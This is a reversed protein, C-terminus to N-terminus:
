SRAPSAPPRPCTPRRCPPGDYARAGACLEGGAGSRLCSPSLAIRGGGFRAQTARTLQWAAGRTPSLQLTAVDALWDAGARRLGGGLALAGFPGRADARLQLAEVAGRADANLSEFPLGVQLGSGRLALAGPAGGVHWPLRGKASLQGIRYSGVAVDRGDLDAAIDPATRPGTIRLTGRVLGRADPLLDALQVPSLRADIDLVRGIRGRADLRSAGATLQVDGDVDSGRLHAHGRGALARGRLSGGLRPVDFTADLVGAQGPAASLRRGVSHVQADVAGPWGAVLFSPDFGQLRGTVDWRPTPAFHAEGQAVLRGRDVTLAAVGHLRGDDYRLRSSGGVRRGRLRGGVQPVDVTAHLAGAQPRRGATLITGHLAGDWGPAFYGPDFGALHAHLAWDLMPRWTVRGSADLVGTPMRAELRQITLAANRGTGALAVQASRGKRLLTGRGNVTWASQTGALRADVDARVQSAAEGWRLGRATVAYDVRANHREGFDGRGRVLVRGGLLEVDLPAFGLVQQELHVNSPHVTIRSDGRVIAGQLRGDGGVGRASFDIDTTQPPEGPTGGLSATDVDHASATFNWRPREAGRLTLTARVPGPAAGALAIDMADLDGKAIFGLRLPATSNKVPVLATAVLDTRYRDAPAYTGHLAFRGRDSDIAVRTLALHGNTAVIGGRLRRIDIVPAAERTIRLGDVRIDDAQLGLPVIIQPLADPWRPLEFPKDSPPLDLTAGQVQMADLRLRRGLLPRLAPDLMVRQARFDLKKWHFRVDHLTMPGSAPGEARAWDLTADAPLRAKIQALLLDRGGVTTLLWYAFAVVLLLAAGTGIASRIALRRHRAHRKERLERIRAEREEPTPADPSPPTADPLRSM